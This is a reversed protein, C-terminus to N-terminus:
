LAKIEEESLGTQKSIVALPVGDDRFGKALERVSQEKGVRLFHEAFSEYGKNAVAEPSDMKIVESNEKFSVSFQEANWIYKMATLAVLTMPSLGKLDDDSVGHGVDLFEVKFPYGIDHYYEPYNAFHPKSLPNWDIEGNYVIFAVM